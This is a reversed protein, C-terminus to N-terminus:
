HNPSNGVRQVQGADNSIIWAGSRNNSLANGEFVGYGGAHVYVGATRGDYIKCNRFTPNSGEKVEVGALNNGYIHCNEFTGWANKNVFVGGEKGHHIKCRKFTPNAGERIEVGALGNGFIDCDDFTGWANLCTLVGGQKGDHFRCRTFAPNAGDRIEAGALSNGFIDCDEYTGAGDKQVLIGSQKGDRLTCGKVVPNADQKVEIGAVTNGYVECNVFTGLGKSHAYIGGAKGDYIRCGRVSPNGADRVEIGALANRAMDCDEFTGTGNSHVFVASAKGDHLKCSKVTPNGEERVHVGAAANGFIDCDLFLGAGKTHVFVGGAKGDRITCNQVTPNAGDRTEVGALVNGFIDCNEFLGAGEKLVFLGGQKGDRIKCRKVTPAGGELVALNAVTNSHIDCNELIGKCKEAFYIGSKGADHISCFTLRPDAKESTVKVGAGQESTIDCKAMELRGQPIVVAPQKSSVNRISVSQIRAHGTDMILASNGECEFIVDHPDGSEGLITMERNIQLPENYRYLGPRVLITGGEAIRRLAADIKEIDDPVRIRPMRLCEALPLDGQLEGRFSPRQTASFHTRVYEETRESAYLNTEKLSIIGDHNYDAKGELAELLYYTYVGHRLSGSEHSVEGPASATLLLVGQPAVELGESLGDVPVAGRASRQDGEFLRNQCADVFFLKMSAPCAELKEYVWDLSILTNLREEDQLSTPVEGEYPVLYSKGKIRVGHGCFALFVLDDPSAGELLLTIQTVLKDKDPQLSRTVEDNVVIVKDRDFGATTLRQGLARVDGGCYQLKRFHKYENIGILLARRHNVKGSPKGTAAPTKETAPLSNAESRPSDTKTPTPTSKPKPSPKVAAKADPKVDPKVNPKTEPKTKTESKAATAPKQKQQQAVFDRDAQILQDLKLTLEEGDARRLTVSIGDASVRVLEAEVTFKTSADTWTRGQGISTLTTWVVLAILLSNRTGM